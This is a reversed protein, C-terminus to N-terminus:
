AEITKEYKKVLQKSYAYIELDEPSIKEEVQKWTPLNDFDIGEFYEHAKVEEINIRINM